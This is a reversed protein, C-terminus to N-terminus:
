TLINLKDYLEWAEVPPLNHREGTVTDAVTHQRDHIIMVARNRRPNDRVPEPPTVPPVKM